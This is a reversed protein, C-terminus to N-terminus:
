QKAELVRALAIYAQREAETRSMNGDYECIGAREDFREALDARQEHDPVRLLLALAATLYDGKLVALIEAKCARLEKVPVVADAPADFRIGDGDAVLKIGARRCSHFLARATKM